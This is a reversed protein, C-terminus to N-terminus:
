TRDANTGEPWLFFGKQAISDLIADCSVGQRLSDGREVSSPKIYRWPAYAEPLGVGDGRGSTVVRGSGGEFVHCDV